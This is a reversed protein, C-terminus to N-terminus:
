MWIDNEKIYKNKIKNFYFINDHINNLKNKLKKLFQLM